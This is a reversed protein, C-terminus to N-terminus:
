SKMPFLFWMGMSADDPLLVTTTTGADSDHVELPGPTPYGECAGASTEIYSYRGSGGLLMLPWDGVVEAETVGDAWSGAYVHSQCYHESAAKMSEEDDKERWTQVESAAPLPWGSAVARGDGLPFVRLIWPDGAALSTREVTVGDSVDVTLEVASDQDTPGAFLGAFPGFYTTEPASDSLVLKGDDVWGAFGGSVGDGLDLLAGTMLNMVQYGHEDDMNVAMYTGSPDILSAHDDTFGIPPHQTGLERVGGDEAVVVRRTRELDMETWPTIAVLAGDSRMGIPIADPITQDITLDGTLLDLTGATAETSNYFVVRAETQGASWELDVVWTHALPSESLDLVNLVSHSAPDVLVVYGNTVESEGSHNIALAAGPSAGKIDDVSAQSL